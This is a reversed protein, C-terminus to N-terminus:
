TGDESLIAVQALRPRGMIAGATNEDSISFVVNFFETSELLDDDTIQIPVM